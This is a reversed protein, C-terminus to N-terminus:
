DNIIVEGAIAFGVNSVFSGGTVTPQIEEVAGLPYNLVTCRCNIRNAASASPDSPFRLYEGGVLFPKDGSVKQGNALAHAQRERGDMATLWEKNYGQEGFMNTATQTSAYNAASTTETRILRMAQMRSYSTFQNRLIRQAQRENLAQFEPDNLLRKLVAQLEKKRNGSVLTVKDAAFRQGYAAFMQRWNEPSQDKVIYKEFNDQYWLAVQTGVSTFLNIYLETIDTDLFLGDFGTAKGTELFLDVGKFNERKFYQFWKKFERSEAIKIQRDWAKIYKERNLQQETIRFSKEEKTAQDYLNNCVALRQDFDQFEARIEPDFPCYELFQERTEGEKPVPLPM